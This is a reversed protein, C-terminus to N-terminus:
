ARRRAIREALSRNGEQRARHELAGWRDTLVAGLSLAKAKTSLCIDYHAWSARPPCQFWRRHLDLKGAMEHLEALDDSWMHCMVMRGYRFRVNDVYVTM